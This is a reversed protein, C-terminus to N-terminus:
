TEKLLVAFAADLLPRFTASGFASDCLIASSSSRM